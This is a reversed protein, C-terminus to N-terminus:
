ISVPFCLEDFLRYIERSFFKFGAFLIVAYGAIILPGVEDSARPGRLILM